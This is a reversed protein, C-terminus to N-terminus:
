LGDVEFNPGFRSVSKSNYQGCVVIILVYHGPLWHCCHCDAATPKSIQQRLLLELSHGELQASHKTIYIPYKM